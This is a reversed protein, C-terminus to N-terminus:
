RIVGGNATIENATSGAPQTGAKHIIGALAYLGYLPDTGTEDNNSSQVMSRNSVIGYKLTSVYNKIALGSPSDRFHIGYTVNTTGAAYVYNYSVQALFSNGDIEIGQSTTSDPILIKLNQVIFRVNSHAPNIAIINSQATVDIVTDQTTHLETANEEATNGQIKVYGGGFFGAFLLSDTETHTKGVEFQFTIVVDWPIYKGVADIKAQKAATNDSQLLNITRTTEELDTLVETYDRGELGNATFKAFDNDAADADDMQVIKDDAIGVDVNFTRNAAITGGGTLGTGATLTVGTHDIHKNADYNATLDHDITGQLDDATEGITRLAFTAVGTMKVFSAAAYTLGALNTLEADLPQYTAAHTHLAGVDGGGTLTDLEAGTATTDSHSTITHATPADGVLMVNTGEVAIIGASVRTITTDTAHGLEIGTFQPSAGTNINQPTSLTVTGDGDDTVTVQNATGTVWTTLDSVSAIDYEGNFYALRSATVFPFRTTTGTTGMVIINNIRDIEIINAM